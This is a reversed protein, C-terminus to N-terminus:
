DVVLTSLAMMLHLVTVRHPIVSAASPSYEEPTSEMMVHVALVPHTHSDQVVEDLPHDLIDYWGALPLVDYGTIGSLTVPHLIIKCFM